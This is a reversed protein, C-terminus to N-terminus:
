INISKANDVWDAGEGPIATVPKIGLLKKSANTSNLYLSSESSGLLIGPFASNYVRASLLLETKVPVLIPEFELQEKDGTLEKSFSYLITDKDKDRVELELWNSDPHILRPAPKDSGPGRRALARGLEGLMAEPVNSKLDRPLNLKISLNASKAAVSLPANCSAFALVLLVIGAIGYFHPKKM